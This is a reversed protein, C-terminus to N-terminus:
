KLKVKALTGWFRGWIGSQEVTRDAVLPVTELTIDGLKYQIEGYVDGQQVQGYIFNPIKVVYKVKEANEKATGTTVKPVSIANKWAPVLNIFRGDNNSALSPVPFYLKHKSEPEYDAFTYFAWEMMETGDHIRGQNGQKTGRGQGQLTISLYRQNGRKATLALNYGSEYIFGTKIGDVGELLGLLPNTNKHHVAYSAVDNKQWDPLNNKLPYDFYPLSHYDNLSEPYKTIYIRAFKALERATTLNNEDYGSSEVFKTKKLGLKKCEANMREVFKEQSGCIHYAVAKAADNGSAVALGQLLERLTVTQGKGLHMLSSDKPQNIAWSLEPLPVIDDLKVTGKEIEQFVVYMVFLKTLSAPPIIKDANKEYLVCGNSVDVLIAAGANVDLNVPSTKYPLPKLDNSHQNPYKKNLVIELKQQEEESILKSNKTNKFGSVWINFTGIVIFFLVVVLALFTLIKLNKPLKMFKEKTKLYNKNMQILIKGIKSDKKINLKILFKEFRTLDNEKLYQNNELHFFSSFKNKLFIIIDDPFDYPEPIDYSDEEIKKQPTKKIKKKEIKKEAVNKKLAEQKEKEKAEEDPNKKIINGNKDFQVLPKANKIRKPQKNNFNINIKDLLSM